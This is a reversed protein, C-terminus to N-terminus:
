YVLRCSCGGGVGLGRGTDNDNLADNEFSLDQIDSVLDSWQTDEAEENTGGEFEIELGDKETIDTGGDGICEPNLEHSCLDNTEDCIDRTCPDRDDCPNEGLQCVGNSCREEGNCFEMDNCDEDTSCNLQCDIDEGDIYGDCDNDKGDSCSQSGIFLETEPEGQICEEVGNNCSSFRSCLGVGCIYPVYDEDIRGDCDDDIGNCDEDEVSTAECHYECGDEYDGNIDYYRENCASIICVGSRCDGIGNPPDCIIGCGGCNLPDTNFSSLPTECGNTPDQDCNAYGNECGSLVCSGRVCEAIGHTFSCQNGCVGCNNIDINLDQFSNYNRPCVDVCDTVGDGDSDPNSPDTGIRQEEEDACGDGDSDQLYSVTVRNSEVSKLTNGAYYYVIGYNTYTGYNSLAVTVSVSGGEGVGLNRLEWTVVQNNEIGGGTASIFRSGQPLSDVLTVNYAPTEGLNVYRFTFTVQPTVVVQPASKVIAIVPQFRDEVCDAEFLSNLFLRTGQTDPNMSIPVATNYRHGGLYSVKGIGLTCTIDSMQCGADLYGTMWLDFNGTLPNTGSKTIMVIDSDKYRDGQPLSYSRESGGVTRFPGDMQAFPYWSNLFTVPSPDGTIIFGNYTLFKGNIANEFANVAQCEAFFHTRFHLFSRVEAVVEEGGSAQRARIDWHMSMFQCYRPDGDEDFLAGDSHNTDTPGRVENVDLSDPSNAGWPSGTSDPIGAANLYGFAIDENGDAFVAINPASVMTKSVIGSFPATAQHVTTININQWSHIIPLAEAQHSADIVFPGGRYGHNTIVAGTQIDVADAYFDPEGMTKGYQIVWYVPIGHLLLQYVLGFAKLMGHDQYDIDMPIILSGQPFQTPAPPNAEINLSILLLLPILFTLIKKTM